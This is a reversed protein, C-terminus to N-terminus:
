AGYESAVEEPTAERVHKRTLWKEAAESSVINYGKSIEGVENWRMNRESYIAVTAKKPGAKATPKKTPKEDVLGITDGNAVGGLSSKVKGGKGPKNPATIATSDESGESIKVNNLYEKAAEAMEKSIVPEGVSLMAPSIKESSM